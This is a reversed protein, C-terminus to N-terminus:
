IRVFIRNNLYFLYKSMKAFVKKRIFKGIEGSLIASLGKSKQKNKLINVIKKATTM